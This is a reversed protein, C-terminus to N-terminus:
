LKVRVITVDNAEIDVLIYGKSDRAQKKLIKLIELGNKIEFRSKKDLNAKNKTLIRNILRVPVLPLFIPITIARKNGEKIKILM